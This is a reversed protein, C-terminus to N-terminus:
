IIKNPLQEILHHKGMLKVTSAQPGKEGNREDIHFYVATDVDLADLDIDVLANKHFYIDTEEPTQIFGYGEEKNIYKVLGHPQPQHHKVYGRQKEKHQVIQREAADFADNAAVYADTHTEIRGGPQQDVVLEKGPLMLVIKVFYFNGKQKHQHPLEITVHGGIIRNYLKQLKSFKQRIHQELADSHAINHFTIELPIAM